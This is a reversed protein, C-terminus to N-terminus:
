PLNLDTQQRHEVMVCRNEVYHLGNKEALQKAETTSVNLQTWIVPKQGTHVSWEVIQQIMEETFKKNRFIVVLDIKLDEPLNEMAPYSKEDLVSDENPNVPIIKFGSKKLYQAIQFSTRNQRSSCGIIAINRTQHLIEKISM